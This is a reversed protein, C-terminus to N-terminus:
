IVGSLPHALYLAYVLGFMPPHCPVDANRCSFLDPLQAAGLTPTLDIKGLM